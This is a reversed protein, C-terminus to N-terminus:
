VLELNCTGKQMCQLLTMVQKSTVVTAGNWTLTLDRFQGSLRHTCMKFIADSIFGYKNLSWNSSGWSVEFLSPSTCQETYFAATKHSFWWSLTVCNQLLRDSSSSSSPLFYKPWRAVKQNPLKTISKQGVLCTTPWSASSFLHYTTM